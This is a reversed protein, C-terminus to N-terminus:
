PLEYGVLTTQNAVFDGFHWVTHPAMWDQAEIIVTSGLPLKSVAQAADGAIQVWKGDARGM